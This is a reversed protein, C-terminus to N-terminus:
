PHTWILHENGVKPQERAAFPYFDQEISHGPQQLLIGSGVLQQKYAALCGSWLVAVKSGFYSSSKFLRGELLVNNACAMHFAAADGGMQEGGISHHEREM